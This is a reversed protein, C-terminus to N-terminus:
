ASERGHEISRRDVSGRARRPKAPPPPELGGASGGRMGRKVVKKRKDTGALQAPEPRPEDSAPLTALWQDLDAIRWRVCRVGIVIPAAMQPLSGPRREGRLAHFTRESVGVYDAAARADLLRPAITAPAHQKIFM